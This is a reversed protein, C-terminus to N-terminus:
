AGEVDDAGDDWREEREDFGADDGGCDECGDCDQEGGCLCVCLDGGCGTCELMGVGSCGGRWECICNRSGPYVKRTM